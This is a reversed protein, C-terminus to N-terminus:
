VPDKWYDFLMDTVTGTFSLSRLYAYWKDTNSGLTYGKIILFQSEADQLSNSTAGNAKYYQLLMDTVTGTYGRLQLSDYISNTVPYFDWGTNNGANVNNNTVYAEFIAGGTANIDRITLYNVSNTDSSDSLTAQTGPTTSQLFKQNTGATLLAGVTNTTGSKLQLTGNTMTLNRTSGLTLADQMAWTGGIGNFRIPNDITKGNTTITQSTTAVFTWINTGSTVTMGTSLVLDGYIQPAINAITSGSFGTFDLTGYVRNGTGLSIIDVGAKFYMNVANAATGDTTTSGGTITRTQGATGVGTFEVTRTGTMTLGTSISTTWVSANLGTIVMKGTGFAMVRTNTNSSTFLGSTLTYSALDLTGATLTTVRTAGTTLASGLQWSGGVGNFTISASLSVGNTTITNGTTTANFTILGTANWVTAAVLSMSGSITPTGSGSFTVTGASVTIDLCTLAGTLTVTYTSAQDFFVSDAATPVSAGSAGGSSASWNTTSSTNWTGTGGVWYRNAM